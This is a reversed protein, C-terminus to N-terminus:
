NGGTPDAAGLRAKINELLKTAADGAHLTSFEDGLEIMPLNACERQFVQLTGPAAKLNPGLVLMGPRSAHLLVLADPVRTTSLVEFGARGLLERLYALVDASHDVCLLRAGSSRPQEPNRTRRYFATIAEEETEYLQFLSALNTIKLINQISHPVQCLKLDGGVRRGSTLLRVMTGLGSSDVFTVEGLHLVFEKEHPLRSSLCQNLSNSADGAIIRGNCRVVTVRGVARADLSLSMLAPITGRSQDRTTVWDCDM